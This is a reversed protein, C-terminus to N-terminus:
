MNKAVCYKIAELIARLEAEVNTTIGRNEAAAYILDGHSNRLCFGYASSRPNGRSAGDTNCKMMGEQPAECRVICHYLRQKYTSARRLIAKWNNRSVKSWVYNKKMM